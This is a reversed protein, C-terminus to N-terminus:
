GLLKMLSKKYNYVPPCHCYSVHGKLETSHTCETLLFPDGVLLYFKGPKCVATHCCILSRDHYRGVQGEGCAPKRHLSVSQSTYIFSM